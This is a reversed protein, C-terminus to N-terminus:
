PSTGTDGVLFAKIRKAVAEPTDLHVHHGGDLSYLTADPVCAVREKMMTPNFDWGSRARILLVPSKIAGLFARVQAEEMRLYSTGRLKPDYSFRVGDGVPYTGRELLIRASEEEMAGAEIRRKVASAFDAHVGLTAHRAVRNRTIAKTMNAPADKAPNSLPGLGEILITKEIRGDDCGAMLSAVGAGMSHGLVSFQDWGLADAMAFGTVVWDIFHYNAEAARWPSYGHGPFDVAVVYHDPLLPALRDFSAANDLWGHLALIPPADPDGWARAALRAHGLDIIIERAADVRSTGPRVMKIHPIEAEDYVEGKRQWGLRSYWRELYAQASMLGARGAMVHHVYHMLETGVGEGQLKTSVAIRGIKIPDADMFLRATAVIQDEADFGIVHVCEPDLGDIELEATIKQGVVFVDERLLMLDYLERQSLASFHRHIFRYPGM